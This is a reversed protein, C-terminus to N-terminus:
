VTRNEKNTNIKVYKNIQVVTAVNIMSWEKPQNISYSQGKMNFVIASEFAHLTYQIFNNIRIFVFMQIKKSPPCWYAIVGLAGM